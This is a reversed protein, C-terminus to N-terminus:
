FTEMDLMIKVADDPYTAAFEYASVARFGDFRHTVLPAVTLQGSAIYKIVRDYINAYRFVTVFDIGKVQASVIDIPAPKQPMGVLVVRGAPALYSIMGAIVKESGSAEFVLNVGKGSTVRDVEAALDEEASNVPVIPVDLQNRIFDLKARKIDAVIVQSCGAALAALATVIGITGAGFVLAIDGPVVQARKASFVGVALPEVLAGEEYSVNDPLRFTLSEPHVVSECTCGHVPPTAWFRVDPDLNYNGALVAPSWQRPIGPEMCVRDGVKLSKVASGIETIEGSAEHGLIMPEKVVFQGIAGHEYYHVDSGCIGVRRPAIRVDNPGLDQNIIIERLSLDRPEELVLAKM